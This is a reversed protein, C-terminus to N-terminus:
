SGMKAYEISSKRNKLIAGYVSFIKDILSDRNEIDYYLARKEAYLAKLEAQLEEREQRNYANNLEGSKIGIMQAITSNAIDLDYMNEM